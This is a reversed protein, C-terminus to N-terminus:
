CHHPIWKDAGSSFVIMLVMESEYTVINQIHVSAGRRCDFERRTLLHVPVLTMLALALTDRVSRSKYAFTLLVTFRVIFHESKLDM